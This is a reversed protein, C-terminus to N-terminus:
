GWIPTNLVGFRGSFSDEEATPCDDVLLVAPNMERADGFFAFRVRRVGWDPVMKVM